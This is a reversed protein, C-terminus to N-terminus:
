PLTIDASVLPEVGQVSIDTAAGAQARQLPETAQARHQEDKHEEDDARVVQETWRTQAPTDYLGHTEHFARAFHALGDMLPDPTSSSSSSTSPSSPISHHAHLTSDARSCQQALHLGYHVDRYAEICSKKTALLTALASCLEQYSLSDKLEPYRRSLAKTTYAVGEVASMLPDLMGSLREMGSALHTSCDKHRVSDM